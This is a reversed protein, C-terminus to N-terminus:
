NVTAALRTFSRKWAGGGSPFRLFCDRITGIAIGSIDPHATSIVASPSLPHPFLTFIFPISRQDPQLISKINVRARTERAHIHQTIPSLVYVRARARLQAKQVLVNISYVNYDLSRRRSLLLNTSKPAGLLTVYSDSIFFFVRFNLQFGGNIAVSSVRGDRGGM